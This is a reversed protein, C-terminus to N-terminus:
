DPGFKTLCFEPTGKFLQKINTRIFAKGKFSRTREM